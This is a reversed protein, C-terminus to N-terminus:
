ADKENAGFLTYTWLNGGAGCSGALSEAEFNHVTQDDGMDLTFEGNFDAKPFYFQIRYVNNCKDEGMLDVYLSCKKSYSDSKNTLVEAQISRKYYVVIETGDAIEGDNFALAKTAPTYTFKGSAAASAQELKTGLTGDSNKVYLNEIEAGETGVAKFSTTAANGSVTLYDTWLVETTKSEYTGGTQMELMGGSVLGNAGSITVAKNRKLSSLKRGGKGTIDTKDETQAISVNQLEDATFLYNGTAIDFGTITEVSTITIDPVIVSM